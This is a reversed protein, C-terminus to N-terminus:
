RWAVPKIVLEQAPATTPSLMLGPMAMAFLSLAFSVVRKFKLLQQNM